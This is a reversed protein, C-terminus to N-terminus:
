ATDRPTAIRRWAAAAAGLIGADPGAEAPLIPLDRHLDSWIHERASSQLSAWYEGGSLGLGGGVVVAGPDLVNVLGGIAAGLAEGATRLVELAKADGSRAAAAVDEAVHARAARDQNYRRVLAPGSAMAELSRQDVTRCQECVVRRPGSAMTGTAGRVGAYPQRDIVLCCSIGTGATVYLFIGYPKGAGFLAEGFAAARVDAEIVVPGYRSLRECVSVEKWNITAASMVNGLQDVLECLGLGIAGAVRGDNPTPTALEDILRMVDDLVAQGGREPQTPILRRGQVFGQPFHVRGARIKTGGVDVGIACFPEIPDDRKM